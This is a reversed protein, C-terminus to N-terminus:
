QGSKLQQKLAKFQLDTGIIWDAAFNKQNLKLKVERDVANDEYMPYFCHVFNKQGIRCLRDEAQVNLNFDWEFGLFFCHSATTAHFSAGSKIVCILVKNRTTDNQFGQWQKAFESPSLGGTITYIKTDRNMRKVTDQIFPIAQRFPTFVVFPNGTELLGKGEELLYELAAGDEDIGLLRPTCLIQRARLLATMANPTIVLADDDAYIFNEMVEQHAAKQKPTMYLPIVQRQKGPLDTLVETKLRRLRYQGVLKRFDEINRPNRQIEKGFPTDIVVCYKNVFGWYSSFVKADALHLPGYMDIVGQRIPTGTLLFSYYFNNYMKEVLGYTQSKSNLLGAEHIEDAIFGAWQFSSLEKLMKYTTIVFPYNTLADKQIKKRQVPTGAYVISPLQFWKEIEEKWVYLAKKPCAILVRSPLERCIGNGLQIRVKEGTFLQPARALMTFLTCVTKGLGMDDFNLNCRKTKMFHYGEIQYPRLEAYVNNMIEQPTM